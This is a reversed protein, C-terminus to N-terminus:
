VHARGIKAARGARCLIRKKMAPAIPPRRRCREPEVGGGVGTGRGPCRRVTWNAAVSRRGCRYVSSVGSRNRSKQFSQPSTYAQRRKGTKRLSRRRPLSWAVYESPALAIVANLSCPASHIGRATSLSAFSLTREHISFSHDDRTTRGANALNGRFLESSHTGWAPTAPSM